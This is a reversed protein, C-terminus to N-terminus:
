RRELWQQLQHLKPSNAYDRRMEKLLKRPRIDEGGGGRRLAKLADGWGARGSQHRNVTALDGGAREWLRDQDPGYPYLEMATEYLAGWWDDETIHVGDLKGTWKLRFSDFWSLLSQCERVAPVLDRRNRTDLHWALQKACDRWDREKILRGVLVADFSNVPHQSSLVTDMLEKFQHSNLRPFRKSLNVLFSVGGTQASAVQKSIRSTNLVEEELVREIATDFGSDLKFHQLWDDATTNLFRKRTDEDLRNWVGSRHPHLTLNAYPTNAVNILLDKDINTGSTLLNILEAVVERPNNVGAMTPVGAEIANLWIKRWGARKVDLGAMLTGDQLCAEGALRLLRSEGTELAAEVLSASPLREVLTRLGEFYNENTDIQLQRRIADEPKNYGSVTAAHLVFWGRKQALLRVEEGIEESLKRPCYKALDAETRQTAPIFSELREILEPDKRWWQWIAQATSGSWKSLVSRLAAQVSRSWQKSWESRPSEFSAKILNTNHEPASAENAIIHQEVWAMVTKSVKESGGDFPQADFNRLAQVDEAVGSVTLKLLRDLVESKLETGKNVNPLLTGLLRVLMRVGGVSIDAGGTRLHGLYEHCAELKKLDAIQHLEVGTETLLVRLPEGEPRGLLFAEAKTQPEFVDSSRALPYGEWRNEVGHPIAVITLEQREVDQPTFSLRFRYTERAKPWLRQWVASVIEAFGEQGVWVVPRDGRDENLLHRAVSTLGPPMDNRSTVDPIVIDVQSSDIEKQPEGPLASLAPMLEPMLIADQLRFVLTHTLVMGGRKATTDPFTVSLIYHDEFPYGSFYPQWNVHPPLHGPRDTFRTIKRLHLFTHAKPAILDHAGNVSGYVARHASLRM